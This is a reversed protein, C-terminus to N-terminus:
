RQCPRRPRTQSSQSILCLDPGLCDMFDIGTCTDTPYAAIHASAILDPVFVHRYAYIPKDELIEASSRYKGAANGALASVLTAAWLAGRIRWAVLEVGITEKEKGKGSVQRKKKGKSEKLWGGLARTRAMHDKKKIEDKVLPLCDACM